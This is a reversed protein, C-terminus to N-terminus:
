QHTILQASQSNTPRIRYGSLLLRLLESSSILYRGEVRRLLGLGQYRGGGTQDEYGDLFRM